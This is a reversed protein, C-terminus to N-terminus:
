MKNPAMRGCNTFRAAPSTGPCISSSARTETSMPATESQAQPNAALATRFQNALEGRRNSITPPAPPSAIIPTPTVTAIM